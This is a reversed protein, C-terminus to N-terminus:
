GDVARRLSRLGSICFSIYGYRGSGIRLGAVNSISSSLGMYLAPLVCHVQSRGGRRCTCVRVLVDSTHRVLQRSRVM